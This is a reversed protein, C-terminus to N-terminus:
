HGPNRSAFEIKQEVRHSNRALLGKISPRVGTFACARRIYAESFVPMAPVRFIAVTLLKNAAQGRRDVARGEYRIVIDKAIFPVCHGNVM